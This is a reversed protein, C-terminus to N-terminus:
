SLDISNSLASTTDIQLTSLGRSLPSPNGVDFMIFKM